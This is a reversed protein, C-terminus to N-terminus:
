PGTRLKMDVYNIQLSAISSSGLNTTVPGGAGPTTFSINDIRVAAAPVPDPTTPWGIQVHLYSGTSDTMANILGPHTTVDALMWAGGTTADALHIGTLTLADSTDITNSADGATRGHSYIALSAIDLQTGLGFAIGDTNALATPAVYLGGGKMTLGSVQLTGGLFNTGACAGATVVDCNAFDTTLSWAQNGALNLPFAIAIVDSLGPRQVLSLQYPDAFGDTDDTRSLDLGSLTLSSGNPSLYTLSLPNDAISTLSFNSLNFAVGDAGRVAALEEDLLPQMGAASAPSSPVNAATAPQALALLALATAGISITTLLVFRALRGCLGALTTSGASVAARGM